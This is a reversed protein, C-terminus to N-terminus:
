TQWKLPRLGKRALAPMTRGSPPAAEARADAMRVRRADLRPV